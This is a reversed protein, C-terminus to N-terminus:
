DTREPNMVAFVSTRLYKKERFIVQLCGRIMERTKASNVCKVILKQRYQGNVKPVRPPLPGLVTIRSEPEGSRSAQVLTDLFLRACAEAREKDADSFGVLCLDCYPPYTMARRMLIEREYFSVYDQAAALSLIPNDPSVTQIVALGKREGRGARGIVQTLLAFTKESGRFDGGYLEGDANLVGVLTVRPFDLGKAVMQTGILIDYEGNAFATLAKEHANKAQTTDADMRLIRAKPFRAQTEQQVRQTGFGAYRVNEDGCSPCREAYPASYGCYHCMLRNNAAHYTMSVSCKPCTIVTKCAKCVVFTNFGRRNVLLISQEGRSLGRELEAALPESVASFPSCVTKDTMDVTLVDPLVAGGYRKALTCLTYKGARARAFSEVSPTASALVLLARHRACRVRAVSRADYRPATESKYTHEQEEDVIVAGLNELPAFVASRTGIVVTAEGRRIRYFADRREGISLGSHMVAIREGYRASFLALSQPTLSIEPVLVIVGKGDALVRDILRLYVRTKGSGTVGFLLATRAAGSEYAQTLTELARQQEGSLSAEFPSQAPYASEPRREVPVEFSVCVGRRLMTRVVSEGVGTYYCIERLSARGVERLFDAAVQQKPTLGEPQESALAIYRANAEPALRGHLCMGGPLTVKACAYYPAFTQERLYEALSLMEENLLPEEDPAELVPKLGGPPLEAPPPGLGFVFGLRPRDGRGFPVLVRSGPRVRGRLAEPVLFTFLTDFSYACNEVGVRACLPQEAPPM